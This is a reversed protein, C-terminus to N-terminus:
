DGVDNVPSLMDNSPNIDTKIHPWSTPFILESKQDMRSDRLTSYGCRGDTEIPSGECFPLTQLAEINNDSMVPSHSQQNNNRSM